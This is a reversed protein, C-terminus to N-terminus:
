RAHRHLSVGSSLVSENPDSGIIKRNATAPKTAEVAKDVGAAEQPAMMSEM